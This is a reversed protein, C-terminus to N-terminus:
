ASTYTLIDIPLLNASAAGNASTSARHRTRNRALLPRPPNKTPAQPRNPALSTVVIVRARTSLDRSPRRRADSRRGIARWPCHAPRHILAVQRPGSAVPPVPSSGGACCLSWRDSRRRPTCGACTRRTRRSASMTTCSTAAPRTEANGPRKYKASATKL